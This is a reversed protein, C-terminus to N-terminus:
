ETVVPAPETTTAPPVSEVGAGTGTSDGGGALVLLAVLAAVALAAFIWGKSSRSSSKNTFDAM